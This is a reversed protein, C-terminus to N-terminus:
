SNGGKLYFIWSIGTPSTITLKGVKSNMNKSLSSTSQATGSPLVMGALQKYGINMTITKKAGISENAKVSFAPNDITFQFNVSSSFVNKFTVSAPQSSRIYIPGQPRPQTCHGYLPCIYDGGIPSTILLHTRTDGLKSPEYLIDM